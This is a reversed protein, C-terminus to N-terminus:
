SGPRLAKLTLQLNKTGNWENITPIFAIDLKGPNELHGLYNRTTGPVVTSRIAIVCYDPNCLEIKRKDITKVVDRVYQLDIYGDSDSPTGVAIFIVEAPSIKESLHIIKIRESSLGERLLETLGEEHIVPDGQRISEVRQTDIDVLNVENTQALCAATSIGVYGAGFITIRM